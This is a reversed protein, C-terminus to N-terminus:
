LSPLKHSRLSNVHVSRGEGLKSPQTQLTASCAYSHNMSELLGFLSNGLRLLRNSYALLFHSAAEIPARSQRSPHGGSKSKRTWRQLGVDTMYECGILQRIVILFLPPMADKRVPLGHTAPEAPALKAQCLGLRSSRIFTASAKARIM